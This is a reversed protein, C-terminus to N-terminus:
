VTSFVDIVVGPMFTTVDRNVFIIEHYDSNSIVGCEDAGGNEM